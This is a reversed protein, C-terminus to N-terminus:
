RKLTAAYEGWRGAVSEVRGPASLMLEELTQLNSPCLRRQACWALFEASDAKAQQILDALRAAIASTTEPEPEPAQAHNTSAPTSAPPRSATTARPTAAPPAEAEEEAFLDSAATASRVAAVLARKQAMAAVTNFFESPCPCEELEVVVWKGGRKRVERNQGGLMARAAAPDKDRTRFYDRPIEGVVESRWRYKSEMSSCTRVAEAIPLGSAQSRLLCKSVYERHGGPLDQHHVAFEPALRFTMALLEAGPQLLAKRTGCGPITGFHVGPKMIEAAVRRVLAVRALISEVNLLDDAPRVTVASEIPPTQNM